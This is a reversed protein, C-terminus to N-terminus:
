PQTNNVIIEIKGTKSTTVEDSLNYEVKKLIVCAQAFVM